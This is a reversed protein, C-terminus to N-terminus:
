KPALNNSPAPSGKTDILAPNTKLHPKDIFGVGPGGCKAERCALLNDYCAIQQEETKGAANRICQTFEVDCMPCGVGAQAPTSMTSGIGILLLAPLMMLSKM